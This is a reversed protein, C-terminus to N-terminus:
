KKELCLKLHIRFLIFENHESSVASTFFIVKLPLDKTRTGENTENEAHLLKMLNQFCIFPQLVISIHIVQRNCAFFKPLGRTFTKNTKAM